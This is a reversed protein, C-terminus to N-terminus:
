QVSFKAPSNDLGNYVCLPEGPVDTEAQGM